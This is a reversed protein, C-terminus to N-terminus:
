IIRGHTLCLCDGANHSCSKEKTDMGGVLKLDPKMQLKSITYDVVEFSEKYEQLKKYPDDVKVEITSGWKTRVTLAFM